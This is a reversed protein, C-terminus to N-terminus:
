LIGLIHLVLVALSGISTLMTIVLLPIIAGKKHTEEKIEASQKSLEEVFSAQVNRYIKVHDIHSAEEIQSKMENLKVIIESIGEKVSKEVDDSSQIESIKALSAEVTKAIGATSMDSTEKIRSISETQMDEFAKSIKETSERTMNSIDQATEINKLNIQRMDSLANDVKEMQDEFLVLQQKADDLEDADAQLNAKIIDDASFRRTIREMFNDM